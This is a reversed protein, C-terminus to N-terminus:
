SSVGAAKKYAAAAATGSAAVLAGVPPSALVGVVAGAIAPAYTAFWSRVQAVKDTDIKDPGIARELEDVQRLAEQEQDGVQGRIVHGRLDMFLARIEALDNETVTVESSDSINVSAGPGVASRDLNSGTVSTTTVDGGVERSEKSRRFFGV